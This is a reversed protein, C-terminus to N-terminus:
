VCFQDTTTVFSSFCDLTCPGSQGLAPGTTKALKNIHDTTAPINNNFPEVFRYFSVM